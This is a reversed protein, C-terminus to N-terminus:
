RRTDIPTYREAYIEAYIEGCPDTNTPWPAPRNGVALEHTESIRSIACAGGLYEGLYEGLDEGLDEGRSIVSIM